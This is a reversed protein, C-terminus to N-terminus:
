FVKEPKSILAVGPKKLFPTGQPTYFVKSEIFPFNTDM